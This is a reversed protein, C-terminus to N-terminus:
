SLEAIELFRQLGSTVRAEGYVMRRQLEIAEIRELAGRSLWFSKDEECENLSVVTIISKDLRPVQDM